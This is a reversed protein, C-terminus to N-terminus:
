KGVAPTEALYADLPSEGQGSNYYALFANSRAVDADAAKFVWAVRTAAAASAPDRMLAERAKLMAERAQGLSVLATLRNNLYGEQTAQLLATQVAAPWQPLEVADLPNPVDPASQASAFARATNVNLGDSAWAQNLRRTAETIRREEFPVLVYNLKAWSLEQERKNQGKYFIVMMPAFAPVQLLDPAKSMAQWVLAEVQEAKDLAKLTAIREELVGQIQSPPASALVTPWTVELLKQSEDIRGGKRLLSSQASVLRFRTQHATIDADTQGEKLLALAADLQAADLAVLRTAADEYASVKEAVGLDPTDVIFQRFLTLASAPDRELAAEYDAVKAAWQPATPKSLDAGAKKGKGGKGPAAIAPAIASVATTLLLVGCLPAVRAVPSFRFM